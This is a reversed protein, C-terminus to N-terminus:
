APAVTELEDVFSFARVPNDEAIWEGIQRLDAKAEDTFVLKM